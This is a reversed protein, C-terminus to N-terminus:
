ATVASFRGCVTRLSWSGAGSRGRWSPPSVGRGSAPTLSRSFSVIREEIMKPLANPMQPRRRERPRLMELGHRDVQRKWAYYTSRHVGFTRCAASVSTRAAEAFLQQRYGFLVDDKTM